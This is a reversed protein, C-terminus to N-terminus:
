DDLGATLGALRTTSERIRALLDAHSAAPSGPPLDLPLQKKRSSPPPLSRARGFVDTGPPLQRVGGNQPCAVRVNKHCFFATAYHAKADVIVGLSAKKGPDARLEIFLPQQPADRASAWAEACSGKDDGRFGGGSAHLALVTRGDRRTVAVAGRADAVLALQGTEYFCRLCQADSAVSVGGRPWRCVVSGDAHGAVAITKGSKYSAEYATFKSPQTPWATRTADQVIPPLPPSKPKKRRRRKPKERPRKTDLGAVADALSMDDSPLRRPRPQVPSPSRKLAPLDDADSAPTPATTLDVSRSSETVRSGSVLRPAAPTPTAQVSPTRSSAAPAPTKMASEIKRNHLERSREDARLRHRAVEGAKSSSFADAMGRDEVTVPNGDCWRLRPFLSVVFSRYDGLESADTIPNPGLELVRLTSVHELCLLESPAEIENSGLWLEELFDLEQLPLTCRERKGIRNEHAQLVRLNSLQAIGDLSELANRSVDLVQLHPLSRLTSLSTLKNASLSLHCLKSAAPWPAEALFPPLTAYGRGQRLLVGPADCVADDDDPDTADPAPTTGADAM